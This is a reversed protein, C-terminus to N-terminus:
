RILHQMPGQRLLSVPDPVLPATEVLYAEAHAVATKLGFGASISFFQDLFGPKSMRTLPKGDEEVVTQFQSKYALIARRKTEIVTSIDVYFSPEFHRSYRAHVLRTVRHAPLETRYGKLGAFHVAKRCIRAAAEHDPHHCQFYPAIVIAPRCKRLLEVVARVSEDDDHLYGDRLGAFFVRAGLVAAADHAEQRRQEPTGHTGMEGCTLHAIGTQYGQTRALALWGGSTMEADDPHAGVALLDLPQTM